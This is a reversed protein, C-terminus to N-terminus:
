NHTYKRSEPTLERQHYAQSNKGWFIYDTTGGANTHPIARPSIVFQNITVSYDGCIRLDGNAKVIPFTLSAWESHEVKEITDDGIMKELAGEYKSRIAFPVVRAKIFM